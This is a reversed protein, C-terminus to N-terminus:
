LPRRSTIHSIGAAEYAQEITCADQRREHEDLIRIIKNSREEEMDSEDLFDVLCSFVAYVFVYSAVPAPSDMNPAMIAARVLEYDGSTPNWLARVRDEIMQHTRAQTMDNFADELGSWGWSPSEEPAERNRPTEAIEFFITRCM